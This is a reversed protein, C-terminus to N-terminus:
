GVSLQISYKNRNAQTIKAYEEAKHEPLGLHVEGHCNRCLVLINSDSDDGGKCREVVHHLTLVASINYGCLQCVSGREKLIRRRFSRSGYKANGAIQKRGKSFKRDSAQLTKRYCEKSCTKACKSALIEKGCAVCSKPRRCTLGYCKMSCYVKGEAKEIQSPRKYIPKNCVCCEINPKRYQPTLTFDPMSGYFTLAKLREAM